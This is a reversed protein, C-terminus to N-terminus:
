ISTLEDIIIIKKGELIKYLFVDTMNRRSEFERTDMLTYRLERGLEKELDEIISILKKKNFKGAILIDTSTEPDNVFFGTLVFFKPNCIEKIKKVFDKEYLAQAKIILTKIEEFLVFNKNAKYYKKEQGTLIKKEKKVKNKPSFFIEEKEEGEEEEGEKGIKSVLLGFQELNDLERRISNLQLNLDRSLQRIYYKKDPDFLFLKLIKVRTNSGFLKGLM